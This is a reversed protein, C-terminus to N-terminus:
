WFCCCMRCIAIEREEIVITNGIVIKLGLAKAYFKIETDTDGVMIGVHNM